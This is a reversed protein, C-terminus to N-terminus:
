VKKIHINDIWDGQLVNVPSNREAIIWGRIMEETINFEKEEQNEYEEDTMGDRDITYGIRITKM